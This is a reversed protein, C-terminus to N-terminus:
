ATHEVSTHATFISILQALIESKTTNTVGLQKLDVEENQMAEVFLVADKAISQPVNPLPHNSLLQSLRFVDNKHKKIDSSQIYEGNEKRKTLDLWARMKLPILCAPSVIVVGDLERRQSLIFNYYDEDLLIASLSVIEENITMPVIEGPSRNGLIDPKKSLIELMFPYDANAPKTFRYFCKDGNSKQKIEYGGKDVFDWFHRVFEDTLAEACLVLDLDKTSRFELGAENMLMDCASGGILVYQNSYQLFHSIFTQIDKVM